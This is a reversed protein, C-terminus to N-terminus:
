NYDNYKYKDRSFKGSKRVTNEYHRMDLVKYEESFPHIFVEIVDIRPIKDCGNKKIYDEAASVLNQKKKADVATAPTGFIAESDPLQRRTKVEIFVLYKDNEAIIDVEKHGIYLNRELIHYGKSELYEAASNEGMQGFERTNM